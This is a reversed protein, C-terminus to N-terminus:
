PVRGRYLRVGNGCDRLLELDREVMRRNESTDKHFNAVVLPQETGQVLITPALAYQAQFWGAYYAADDVYGVKRFLNVTDRISDFRHLYISIDDRGVHAPSVVGIQRATTWVNYLSVAAVLLLAVTLRNTRGSL